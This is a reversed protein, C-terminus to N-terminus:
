CQGRDGSTQSYAHHTALETRTTLCITCQQGQPSRNRKLLPITTASEHHTSETLYAVCAQVNCNCYTDGTAEGKNRLIHSSPLIMVGVKRCVVLQGGTARVQAM